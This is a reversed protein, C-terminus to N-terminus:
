FLEEEQLCEQKLIRILSELAAEAHPRTDAGVMVKMIDDGVALTGENIWMRLFMVGDRRRAEKAANEAKERDVALRMAKVPPTPIKERAEKRSSERVIGHHTLYVGTKAAGPDHKAEEAWHEFSPVDKGATSGSPGPTTESAPAACGAPAECDTPGAALLMKIGHEIAPLVPTINELAAKPSGPLTIILSRGRIGAVSRSLCGRPTVKMSEARMAEPIGPVFREIVSGAAEPTIDRPSFGTGGTTLILSIGREDACTLLEKKIKEADDPVLATYTVRYGAESLLASLAPGSKDERVGAASRDSVTIVAATYEM